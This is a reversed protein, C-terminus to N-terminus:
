EEKYERNLSEYLCSSCDRKDSNCEEPNLISDDTLGLGYQSPCTLITAHGYSLAEILVKPILGSKKPNGNKANEMIIELGTM